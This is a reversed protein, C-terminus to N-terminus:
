FQYGLGLHIKDDDDAGPPPDQFEYEIKFVANPHFWYNSGISVQKFKSEITDGATNDDESYRAFLGIDGIDTAFRISPEMYWGYQEDRGFAAAAAGNLDWRAYLARFALRIDPTIARDVVTHAEWLSASTKPDGPDGQTIDAQYQFSSALEVGPIGTYKIRGTFAPKRATAEAVSQRGGRIKFADPGSTEVNLGSHVHGDFQLGNNMRYTLGVGGEWWTVPIINTEVRNREVGYFTPPEHTENIIGVPLLYLGARGSLHNTFDYELWAQELEVAGAGGKVLAHEIELESHLRLRDSFQHGFYLVFRHFDLRNTDGGDYHLEGYGGISTNNRWGSQLAASQNSAVTEVAEAAAEIKADTAEVKTQADEAKADTTRLQQKLAEIETQQKQIIAWMEDVTPTAMAPAVSTGLATVM